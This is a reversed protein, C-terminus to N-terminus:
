EQYKALVSCLRGSVRALLSAQKGHECINGLLQGAGALKGAVQLCKERQRGLLSVVRELSQWGTAPVFRGTEVERVVLQLIERKTATRTQEKTSWRNM